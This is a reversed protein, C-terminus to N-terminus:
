RSSSSQVRSTETCPVQYIFFIHTEHTTPVTMLLSSRRSIRWCCSITTPPHNYYRPVSDNSNARRAQYSPTANPLWSRSLLLSRSGALHHSVSAVEEARSDTTRTSALATPANGGAPTALKLRPHKSRSPHQPLKDVLLTTGTITFGGQKIPVIWPPLSGRSTRLLSM